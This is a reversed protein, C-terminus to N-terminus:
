VLSGDLPQSVWGRFNNLLSKLAMLPNIQECDFVAGRQHISLKRSHASPQSAALPSLCRPAVRPAGDPDLIWIRNLRLDSILLSDIAVAQYISPSSSPLCHLSPFLCRAILIFFFRKARLHDHPRNRVQEYGDGEGRGGAFSLAFSLALSLAFGKSLAKRIVEKALREVLSRPLAKLRPM